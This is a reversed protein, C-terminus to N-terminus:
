EEVEDSEDRPPPLRPLRPLRREAAVEERRRRRRASAFRDRDGARAAGGAGVSAVDAAAAAPMAASAALSVATTASRSASAPKRALVPTTTWPSVSWFGALTGRASQGSRLLLLVYLGASTSSCFKLSLLALRTYPSSYPIPSSKPKRTQFPTLQLVEIAELRMKAAGVIARAPFFFVDSLCQSSKCELDFM